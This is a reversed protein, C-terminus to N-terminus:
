SAPWRRWAECWWVPGVGSCRPPGCSRCTSSSARTTATSGCTRIRRPSVPSGASSRACCCCTTTAPSCCCPLWQALSAVARGPGTRTGGAARFVSGRVPYRGRTPTGVRAPHRGSALRRGRAPQRGSALRRGRAPHRGSTAHSSPVPETREEGRPAPVDVTVTGELDTRRVEVGAAELTALIEPAPHGYTNDAGVGILGVQAGIARLFDPDSTSSGHHPVTMLEAQLREPAAAMLDRQAAEEVDGTTLVRRDGHHLRLVYSSDNLESREHRYPRGPPPHLVEVELDGVTVNDGVMPARVPVDNEAAVAFVEAAEPLETPVPASWVVNVSLRRLVEPVGGVHDLHPHTVVLLDIHRRGHQRLWRAATDDEGADVLVRTEPSEVLFADGQGVDIATVRFGDPARGGLVMPLSAILVAIVAVAALVRAARGRRRTLLWACGAVLAVVTAPRALEVVGGVGGFGHAAALVIRSGPSALAFFVAGLELNAVALVTGVFSLAAAMAAAPVAVLNAPVSGLGLEGFTVLVLPVVAIQAGLTISVLEALRRPLRRPLRRRVVPAILLVGGTATASLLLGLSGALRPDLLVLVLVAVALAHRAERVQGRSSALLLLGAMTGARMVSPEFRTVFAFWPVVLAVALRRWRADLRLVTALGLVGAIVIAVNSGSVATLHTLSTTRMAERDEEPLLRTDGTVFGVLLGGVRDDLHHTAAARVRARVHESAASLTGPDAVTVWRQPDLVAVAHQRALWTGYGGEPLPRATVEGAWREGLAPPEADLTLAARERTPVGDVEDVRVLVHWGSAIPRPESAVTALVTAGGGHAALAPLAGHHAADVRLVAGGASVTAVAVLTVLGAGVPLYTGDGYGRGVLCVGVAVAVAVVALLVGAGAPAAVQEGLLAGSVSAIAWGPVPGLVRGLSREAAPGDDAAEAPGPRQRGGGGDRGDGSGGAPEDRGEGPRAHTM